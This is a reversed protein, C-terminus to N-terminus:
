TPLAGREVCLQYRRLDSSLMRLLTDPTAQIAKGAADLMGKLQWQGPPRRWHKEWKARVVAIFQQLYSVPAPTAKIARTQEEITSEDASVGLSAWLGAIEDKINEPIMATDSLSPHHSSLLDKTATILGPSPAAEFAPFPAKGKARQWEEVFREVVCQVQPSAQRPKPTVAPEIPERPTHNDLIQNSERYRGAQQVGRESELVSKTSKRNRLHAQWAPWFPLRYQLLSNGGHNNRLNATEVLGEARLTKVHASIASKSKGMMSAFTKQSVICEGTTADAHMCLLILTRFEGDSLHDLDVFSRPIATFSAKGGFSIM